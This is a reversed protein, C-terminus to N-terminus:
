ARAPDHGAEALGRDATSFYRAGTQKFCRRSFLIQRPLGELGARRTAEEVRALVVPRERGHIMCYLNYPWAPHRRRRYCLTIWSLACLARAADRVREDPVDWVVMANARYGLERHRLILGFRRIIGAEVLRRLRAIVEAEDMGIPVGLAAYPRSVLPLGDELVALLARDRPDPM